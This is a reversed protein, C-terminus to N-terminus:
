EVRAQYFLWEATAIRGERTSYDYIRGNEYEKPTPVKSKKFIAM